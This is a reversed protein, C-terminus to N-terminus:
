VTVQRTVESSPWGTEPVSVNVATPAPASRGVVAGAGVGSPVSGDEPEIGHHSHATMTRTTAVVATAPALAIERARERPAQDPGAAYRRATSRRRLEHDATIEVITAKRRRGNRQV